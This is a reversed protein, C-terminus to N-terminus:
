TKAPEDSALWDFTANCLAVFLLTTDGITIEDRDAIETPIMVLNNKHRIVNSKGNDRLFYKRHMEDYVLYAHTERSIRQDGFDLSIRQDPGRGISNQGYYVGRFNGRGPGKTVILWGVVPDFPAAGPPLGPQPALFITEGQGPPRSAGGAAGGGPTRVHPSADTGIVRGRQPQDPMSFGPSNPRGQIVTRDGDTNDGQREVIQTRDTESGGGGTRNM